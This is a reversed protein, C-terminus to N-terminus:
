HAETVATGGSAPISGHSMRLVIVFAILAVAAYIAYVIQFGGM